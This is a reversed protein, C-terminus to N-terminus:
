IVILKQLGMSFAPKGGGMQGTMQNGMGFNNQGGMQTSPGMQNTMGFQGQMGQMGLSAGNPAGMQNSMGFGQGHQIGGMMQNPMTFRQGQQMGGMQNNMMMPNSFGMQNTAGFQNVQMGQMQNSAGFQNTPMGQMQNTMMMPHGQLGMQSPTVINGPMQMQMTNQQTTPMNQGMMIQQNGFQIPQGSFMTNAPLQQQIPAAQQQQQIPVTQQQQQQEHYQKLIPNFREHPKVTAQPVVLHFPSMPAQLQQHQVMPAQQQQVLPTQVQTTFATNVRPHEEHSITNIQQHQQQPHQIQQQEQHFQKQEQHFQQQEQHFQQQEKHFQQPQSQEQQEHKVSETQESSHQEIIQHTNLIAPQTTVQSTMPQSTHISFFTNPRFEEVAKTENSHPPTPQVSPPQKFVSKTAAPAASVSTAAVPKPPPSSLDAPNQQPTMSLSLATLSLPKYPYHKINTNVAVKKKIIQM